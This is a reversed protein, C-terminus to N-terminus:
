IHHILSIVILLSKLGCRNHSITPFSIFLLSNNDMAFFPPQEVIIKAPSKPQPLVVAARTNAFANCHSFRVSSIHPFHEPQLISKFLVGNYISSSLENTPRISLM